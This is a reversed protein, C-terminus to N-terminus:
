WYRVHCTFKSSWEYGDDGSEQCSTWGFDSKDISDDADDSLDVDGFIFWDQETSLKEWKKPYAILDQADAPPADFHEGACTNFGGKMFSVGVVAFILFFLIVVVAVYGVGSASAVLATLMMKLGPSRNLLRLPKMAKIAILPKITGGSAMDVYSSLLILLDFKNGGFRTWELLGKQRVKRLGDIDFGDPFNIDNKFGYAIVKVLFEITLGGDVSYQPFRSAAALRVRSRM